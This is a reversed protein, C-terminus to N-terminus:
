ARPSGRTGARASASRRAPRPAFRPAEWHRNIAAVEDNKRRARARMASWAILCLLAPLSGPGSACGGSVSPSSLGKGGDAADQPTGADPPDGGVGADISADPAGADPATVTVLGGTRHSASATTGVVSFPFDGAATGTDSAITLLSSAGATVAPPSLTWRLSSPLGTVTLRAVEAAGSVVTTRVEFPVSGGSDMSQVAPLLSIVFDNREGCGGLRFASIRSATGTKGAYSGTYWFTCDDVPDIQLSSYDGWAPGFTQAFAGEFLRGEGIPLDGPPDSANRAAFRLSPYVSSSSVSYAMAVNGNKDMAISGMFRHEADPALTGQQFVSLGGGGDPRLEYWRMGVVGANADVAHAAVISEHDGFNRYAVRHRLTGVAATLGQSTGPQTVPTASSAPSWAAVQVAVRPSLSSRSPDAWDLHLRYVGLTPNPSSVFYGAAGAPPPASGDMDAPFPQLDSASIPFCQQTASAGALMRIRDFGCVNAGYPSTVFTSFLYADPWLGIKGYDNPGSYPFQYRYWAGLPDPGQTVAVCQHAFGDRTNWAMQTLVWRDSLRDYLAIPDGSDSVACTGAFGQWLDLTSSPGRLIHGQKDFITIWGNTMEVVHNAGVAANADSPSSWGAGPLGAGAGEFSSLPPPPARFATTSLLPDRIGGSWGDRLLNLGPEQHDISIAPGVGLPVDRLPRSVDQATARILLAALLLPFM